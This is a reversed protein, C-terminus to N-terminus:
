STRGRGLWIWAITIWVASVAIFLLYGAHGRDLREGFAGAMMLLVSYGAILWGVFTVILFQLVTLRRIARIM